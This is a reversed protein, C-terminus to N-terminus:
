WESDEAAAGLSTIAPIPAPQKAQTAYPNSRPPNIWPSAVSLSLLLWALVLFGKPWASKARPNPLLAYLGYAALALALPSLWTELWARTPNHSYYILPNVLAVVGMGTLHHPFSLPKSIPQEVATTQM